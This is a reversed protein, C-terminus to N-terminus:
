ASLGQLLLLLAVLLLLNYLTGCHGADTVPM